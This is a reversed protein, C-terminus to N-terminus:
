SIRQQMVMLFKQQYGNRVWEETAIGTMDVSVSNFQEVFEDRGKVYDGKSPDTQMLNSKPLPSGVTVGIIKKSM